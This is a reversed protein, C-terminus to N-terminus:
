NEEELWGSADYGIASYGDIRCQQLNNDFIARYEDETIEDDLVRDFGGPVLEDPTWWYYIFWDTDLDVICAGCGLKKHQELCPYLETRHDPAHVIEAWVTRKKVPM